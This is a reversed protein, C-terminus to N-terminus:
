RYVDEYDEGRRKYRKHVGFYQEPARRMQEEIFHNVRLADATHDGSPFNEWAPFAELVYTDDPERRAFYPIIQCGAMQAIRSTAVNTIAPAGFFPLIEAMKTKKGQDPAYWILNGQKLARLLARLDDFHLAVKLQKERARRMVDTVAPNNPDRFLAWFSLKNNLIRAGLQLMTVHGTM